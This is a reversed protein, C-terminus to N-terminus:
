NFTNLNDRVAGSQRMNPLGHTYSNTNHREFDVCMSALLIIWHGDSPCVVFFCIAVVRGITSLGDLAPRQRWSAERRSGGFPNSEQSNVCMGHITANVVGM